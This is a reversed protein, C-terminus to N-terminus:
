QILILLLIVRQRTIMYKTLINIYTKDLNFFLVFWSLYFRSFFFIVIKLKIIKMENRRWIFLHYIYFFHHHYKIRKNPSIVIIWELLWFPLLVVVVVVFTFNLKSQQYFLKLDMFTFFWDIWTCNLNLFHFSKNKIINKNGDDNINYNYKNPRNTHTEVLKCFM